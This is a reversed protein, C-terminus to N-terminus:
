PSAAAGPRRRVQRRERETLGGWIGDKENRILAYELCAERVVCTECIKKAVAQRRERADPREAEPAYFYRGQGKCQAQEMWDTPLQEKRRPMDTHYVAHM